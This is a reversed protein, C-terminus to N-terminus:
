LTLLVFWTYKSFLLRWNKRVAWRMRSSAMFQLTYSTASFYQGINLILFTLFNNESFATCKGRICYSSVINIRFEKLWYSQWVAESHLKDEYQNWRSCKKAPCFRSLKVIPQKIYQFTRSIVNTRLFFILWNCKLLCALRHWNILYQM